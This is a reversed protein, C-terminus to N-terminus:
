MLQHGMLIPMDQWICVIENLVFISCEYVDRPGELGEQLVLGIM